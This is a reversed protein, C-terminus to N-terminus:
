VLETGTELYELKIPSLHCLATSDYWYIMESVTGVFHFELCELLQTMFGMLAICLDIPLEATGYDTM